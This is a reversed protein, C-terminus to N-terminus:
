KNKKFLKGIGHKMNDKISSFKSKYKEQYQEKVIRNLNIINRKFKKNTISSIVDKWIDEKYNQALLDDFKDEMSDWIYQYNYKVKHKENIQGDYFELVTMLIDRDKATRKIIKSFIENEFEIFLEETSFECINLTNYLLDASVIFDICEETLNDIFNDNKGEIFYPEKISDDILKKYDSKRRCESLKISFIAKKLNPCYIDLGLAWKCLYEVFRKEERDEVVSNILPDIKELLKARMFNPLKNKSIFETINKINKYTNPQCKAIDIYTNFFSDGFNVDDKSTQYVLMFTKLIDDDLIRKSELYNVLLIEVTSADIGANLMRKCETRLNNSSVRGYLTVWKKTIKHKSGFQKAYIMTINNMIESDYDKVLKEISKDFNISLLKAYLNSLLYKWKHHQKLLEVSLGQNILFNNFISIFTLLYEKNEICYNNIYDNDIQDENFFNSYIYKSLSCNKDVLNWYSKAKYDDYNDVDMIWKIMKYTMENVEDTFAKEQIHNSGDLIFQLLQLNNIEDNEWLFKKTTYQKYLNKVLISELMSGKIMFKEFTKISTLVDKYNWLSIDQNEDLLYMYADFLEYLHNFDYNECSELVLNFDEFDQGYKCAAQLYLSNKISHFEEKKNTGDVIVYPANELAKFSSAASGKPDIGAIMYFFHTTLTEDNIGFETFKGESNLSYKFTRPKSKLINTNTSFSIKKALEVPLAYEICGIWKFVNESTDKIILFKREEEPLQFQQIIFSICSEIAESRGDKYFELADIKTFTAQSKINVMPAFDFLDDKGYYYEAPKKCYSYLQKNLYNIPYDLINGIYYQKIFTTRVGKSQCELGFASPANDFAIYEFSEILGQATGLKSENRREIYKKYLEIQNLNCVDYIEKSFTRIAFGERNIVEGKNLIDRGPKCRTYVIQNFM